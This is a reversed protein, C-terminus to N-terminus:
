DAWSPGASFAFKVALRDGFLERFAESFGTGIITKAHELADQRVVADIEDHVLNVIECSGGRPFLPMIKNVARILLNASSGQIPTNVLIRKRREFSPWYDTNPDRDDLLPPLFRRQGTITYVCDLSLADVDAKAHAAAIGPFMGFFADFFQQAEGLTYVVGLKNSIQRVFGYITLVYSIGLTLIKAVKYVLDVKQIADASPLGFIQAAIEKYINRGGALLEILATDQCHLALIYMEIQSLDASLWLWPPDVRFAQRWERPVNQLNPVTSHLRGTRAALQNWGAAHIRGDSFTSRCIGEITTLRSKAASYDVLLRTEPADIKALTTKQTDSVEIGHLALAPIVQQWSDPNFDEQEEVPVLAKKGDPLVIREKRQRSKPKWPHYDSFCNCVAQRRAAKLAATEERDRDRLGADIPIGTMKIRTLHPFFEMREAFCSFLNEKELQDALVQWLAPLHEVDARMYAYQEPGIAARGWDFDGYDAPLKIGLYRLVVADLGNDSPDPDYFSAAAEEDGNQAGNTALDGLEYDLFDELRGADESGREKGLGLLRAALMTDIVQSSTCIGYRRLVTIDFDLNHGVITRNALYEQIHLPLVPKSGLVDFTELGEETQVTVFRLACRRSDKAYPHALGKFQRSLKLSKPQSFDGDCPWPYYTELDFYIYQTMDHQLSIQQALSTPLRRKAATRARLRM